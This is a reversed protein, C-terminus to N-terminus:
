LANSHNKKFVIKGIKGYDKLSYVSKKNRKFYSKGM